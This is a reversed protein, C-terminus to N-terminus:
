SSKKGSIRAITESNQREFVFTVFPLKLEIAKLAKLLNKM